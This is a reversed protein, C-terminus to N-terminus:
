RFFDALSERPAHGARSGILHIPLTQGRPQLDVLNLVDVRAPLSALRAGRFFIRDFTEALLDTRGFRPLLLKLAAPGLSRLVFGRRLEAALRELFTRDAEGRARAAMWAGAFLSGGSVSSVVEVDDLWGVAALARVTGRHFAAARSGGGSLALGLRAIGDPLPEEGARRPEPVPTPSM